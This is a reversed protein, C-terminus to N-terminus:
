RLWWRRWGPPMLRVLVTPAFEAPGTDVAASASCIVGEATRLTTQVVIGGIQPVGPVSVPISEPPDLRGAPLSVSFLPVRRGEFFLFAAWHVAFPTGLEFDLDLTGDAYSADIELGCAPDARGTHGVNRHFMPWASDALGGSSGNIAYLAFAAFPGM